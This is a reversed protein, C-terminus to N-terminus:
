ALLEMQRLCLRLQQYILWDRWLATTLHRSHARLMGLDLHFHPAQYMAHSKSKPQMSRTQRASRVENKTRTFLHNEDMAAEPMVVRSASLSAQRLGPARKPAGLQRLINRSIQADQRLCLRQTPPRKYNPFAFQRIDILQGSLQSPKQVQRYTAFPLPDSAKVHLGWAEYSSLLNSCITFL